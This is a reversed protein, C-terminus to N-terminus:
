ANIKDKLAEVLKFANESLLNQHLEYMNIALDYVESALLV